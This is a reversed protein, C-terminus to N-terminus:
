QGGLRLYEELEQPTLERNPDDAGNPVMAPSGAKARARNAGINIVGILENIAQQVTAKDQARDLRAIAETAKQGEVETIQGGGKLTNYAELFNQGTVQKFRALADASATGPVVPLMSRLGTVDGLAPHDRLGELTKVSYSANDIIRPLDIEAQAVAEAKTKAGAQAGRVEPTDQLPLGKTLTAGTAPSTYRDGLNLYQPNRKVELFRRQDEPSLNNYFQYEQVSAPSGSGGGLKAMATYPALELGLRDTAVDQPTTTKYSEPLLAAQTSRLNSTVIDQETPEFRKALIDQVFSGKDAQQQKTSVLTKIIEAGLNQQPVDSPPIGGAVPQAPFAAPFDMGTPPMFSAMRMPPLGMGGIESALTRAM